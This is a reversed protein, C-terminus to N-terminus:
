LYNLIALRILNRVQFGNAINRLRIRILPAEIVMSIDRASVKVAGKKALTYLALSKSQLVPGETADGDNKRNMGCIYLCQTLISNKASSEVDSRLRLFGTELFVVHLDYDVCSDCYCDKKHSFCEMKVLQNMGITDSEDESEASHDSDLNMDHTISMKSAATSLDDMDSSIPLKTAKTRCKGSTTTKHRRLIDSMISRSRGSLADEVNRLSSRFEPLRGRNQFCKAHLITFTLERFCVIKM